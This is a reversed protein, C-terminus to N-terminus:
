RRARNLWGNLFVGLEPRKEVLKEYFEAHKQRLVRMLSVDDLKEVAALTKPGLVGDVELEEPAEEEDEEGDALLANVAAQLIRVARVKGMNVAMDLVRTAVAQSAMFDLSLPKWFDSAYVIIADTRTLSRVDDVDIDGDKDIDLGSQELYRLSIGWFTPGGPDSPHNSWIGENALVYGVSEEFRAM